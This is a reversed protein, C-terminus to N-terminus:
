KEVVKENKEKWASEIDGLAEWLLTKTIEDVIREKVEIEERDFNTWRAEEDFMEQALIEDVHDRKRKATGGAFALFPMPCHHLNQHQQQQLLSEENLIKKIKRKMHDQLSGLRDPPNYFALPRKDHKATRFSVDPPPPRLDAYMEKCMDLILKEYINTVHDSNLKESPVDGLFLEKTRTEILDDIRSEPPFILALPSGNAPPIYPPPPKNPIERFLVVQQELQKIEQEIQLQQRRLVEAENIIDPMRSAVAATTSPINSGHGSNSIYAYNTITPTSPGAINLALTQMKTDNDDLKPSDSPSKEKLVRDSITKEDSSEETPLKDTSSSSVSESEPSNREQSKPVEPSLMLPIREFSENLEGLNENLSILRKELESAVATRNVTKGIAIENYETETEEATTPTTMSSTPTSSSAEELSAGDAIDDESIQQASQLNSESHSEDLLSDTMLAPLSIDEILLQAEDTGSSIECEESPVPLDFTTSYSESENRNEQPSKSSHEEKEITHFEVSDFSHENKSTSHTKTTSSLISNNNGLDESIESFNILNGRDIQDGIENPEVNSPSCITRNVESTEPVSESVLFTGHPSSKETTKVSNNTSNTSENNRDHFSTGLLSTDRSSASVSSHRGSVSLDLLTKKVVGDNRFSGLVRIKADEYLRELCAKTLTYKKGPEYKNEKVGTLRHWLRNLKSGAARVENTGDDDTTGSSGPTSSKDPIQQLTQLSNEISRIRGMAKEHIEASRDETTIKQRNHQLLNREIDFIEQEERELKQHWELLTQMHQRRKQLEQERRQLIDELSESPELEVGRVATLQLQSSTIKTTASAVEQKRCLESATVRSSAPSSAENRASVISSRRLSISHGNSTLSNLQEISKPTLSTRSNSGKSAEQETRKFRDLEAREKELRVLIARQKKKVISIQETLGHERYRQKQLELWALQGKTRDLLAKEKMRIRAAMQESKSKENRILLDYMGISSYSLNAESITTSLVSIELDTRNLVAFIDSGMTTDNLQVDKESISEAPDLAELESCSSSSTAVKIFEMKDDDTNVKEPNFRNSADSKESIKFSISEVSKPRHTEDRLSNAQEGAGESIQTEISGSSSVKEPKEPTPERSRELKRRRLSEEFSPLYEEPMPPNTNHSDSLSFSRSDSSQSKSPSEEPSSGAATTTSPTTASATATTTTDAAESSTRSKSTKGDPTSGTSGSGESPSSRTTQAEHSREFDESYKSNVSANTNVVSQNPTTQTIGDRIKIPEVRAPPNKLTSYLQQNVEIVQSLSRNFAELMKHYEAEPTSKDHPQSPKRLFNYQKESTNDSLQSQSLNAQVNRGYFSVRDPILDADPMDTGRHFNISRELLSSNATIKLNSIRDVSLPSIPAPAAQQADEKSGIKTSSLPPLPQIFDSRISSIESITNSESPQVSISATRPSKSILPVSRLTELYEICKSHMENATEVRKSSRRLDSSDSSSSHNGNNTLNRIAELKKRVAMIFPYPDPQLLTNKLWPAVYKEEKSKDKKETFSNPQKFTTDPVLSVEPIDLKMEKEIASTPSRINVDVGKEKIEVVNKVPTECEKVKVPSLLVEELPVGEPKRMIGIKESFDIELLPLRRRVKKGDSETKESVSAKTPQPAAPINKLSVASASRRIPKPPAEKNDLKSPKQDTAKVANGSGSKQSSAVSQSRKRVKQINKSVLDQTSKKLDNLRKKILEKENVQPPNAKKEERRRSQQLKIFERAKVPDYSKEKEKKSDPTERDDVLKPRSRSARSQVTSAPKVPMAESKTSAAEIHKIDEPEPPLLSQKNLASRNSCISVASDVDAKNISNPISYATSESSNTVRSIEIGVQTKQKPDTERYQEQLFKQLRSSMEDRESKKAEFEEKLRDASPLPIINYKAHAQEEEKRNSDMRASKDVEPPMVSSTYTKISKVVVPTIKKVPSTPPDKLILKTIQITSKRRPSGPLTYDTERERFIQVASQRVPVDDNLSNISFTASNRSGKETLPHSESDTSMNSNTTTPTVSIVVVGTAFLRIAVSRLRSFM